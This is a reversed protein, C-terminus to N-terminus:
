QRNAARRTAWAGVLALLGIMAMLADGGLTPLPTTAVIARVTLTFPQTADPGSGNSATITIPFNGSATPTGSITATGDGNDTFTVGAPLSGSETIGTIAPAATATVAFSGFQGQQFTTANASTIASAATGVLSGANFVRFPSCNFCEGQAPSAFNVAITGGADTLPSVAPLRVERASSALSVILGLVQDNGDSASSNSSDYTLPPFTGTDGGAVSISWASVSQTDADYQFSGSATGGDSFTVGSLTWTVPFAFANAACLLLTAVVFSVSPKLFRFSRM